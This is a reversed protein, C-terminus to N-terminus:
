VVDGAAASRVRADASTRRPERLRDYLDMHLDAMRRITLRGAAAAARVGMLEARAPEALLVSIRNALAAVDGPDVLYGTERDAILEGNGGVNTCVTPKGAGMYEIVANSFGESESCLVGVSFHKLLPVVEDISGQIHVAPGIGLCAASRELADKLPGSGILVLHARPHAERVWAFARLLDAHRKWPNMNAVMGVIPDSPGIHHRERFGSLADVSFRAPDHGNYIVDTRSLPFRERAHVNRRVADSNAVIRTVFLNAIRLLRLNATTYWFGMDRRSVVVKAGGLRCFPPGAISADNMFIHAVDFGHRRVYRSLGFLKRVGAPRALTPIDLVDFPCPMSFRRAAAPTARLLALRPEWRDRDLHAILQLIQRETGGAGEREPLYDVLYLIKLRM